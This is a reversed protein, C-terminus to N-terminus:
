FAQLTPHHYCDDHQHTHGQQSSQHCQHDIATPLLAMNHEHPHLSRIFGSYRASGSPLPAQPTLPCSLPEADAARASQSPVVDSHTSHTGSDQEAKGQGQEAASGGWWIVEWPQGSAGARGAELAAERSMGQGLGAASTNSASLSGQLWCGCGPWSPAKGWIVPIGWEEGQTMGQLAAARM